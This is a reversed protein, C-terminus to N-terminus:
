GGGEKETEKQAWTVQHGQPDTPHGDQNGPRKLKRQREHTQGRAGGQRLRERLGSIIFIIVLCGLTNQL